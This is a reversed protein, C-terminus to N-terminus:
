SKEHKGNMVEGFVRDTQVGIGMLRSVTLNIRKWLRTSEQSCVRGDATIHKWEDVMAGLDSFANLFCDTIDEGMLSAADLQPLLVFVGGSEQAVAQAFDTRETMRQMLMAQEISITQNKIGYLRNELQSKTFGMMAATVAHGGNPASAMERLANAILDSTM